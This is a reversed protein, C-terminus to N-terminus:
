GVVVLTASLAAALVCCDVAQTHPADHPAHLANSSGAGSAAGSAAGTRLMEVHRKCSQALGACGKGVLQWWRYSMWGCQM